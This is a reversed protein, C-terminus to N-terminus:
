QKRTPLSKQMDKPFPKFNQELPCRKTFKGHPNWSTIEVLGNGIKKILNVSIRDDNIRLWVNPNLKSTFEMVYGTRDVYGEDFTYEGIDINEVKESYRFLTNFQDLITKVKTM